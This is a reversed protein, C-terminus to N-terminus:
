FGLNAGSVSERISKALFGLMKHDALLSSDTELQKVFMLIFDRYNKSYFVQKLNEQQNESVPESKSKTKRQRSKPKPEPEPAETPSSAAPLQTKSMDVTSTFLELLDVSSIRNDMIVRKQIAEFRQSLRSDDKRKAATDRM